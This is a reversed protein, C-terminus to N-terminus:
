VSKLRIEFTKTYPDPNRYQILKVKGGHMEVIKRTISLGLGTGKGTTRSKDGQVFPDFLHKATETEIFSGNDSIKLVIDGQRFGQKEKEISVWLTTKKPNHKYANTLLNQIARSLQLKDASIMIADDPIALELEMEKEEFDTYAKAVCERFIECIDEQKKNLKYGASDLKVYEFLLTVMDVTQMSKLRIAELYEKEKEKEVTGEALAQSFGAITTIPTKLDHAVDSLLLNKQKEIERDKVIRQMELLKVRKSVAVAFSIGGVVYPLVWIVLLILCCGLVLLASTVAKWGTASDVNIIIANMGVQGIDIGFCKEFFQILGQDFRQSTIRAFFIEVLILMGDKFSSGQFIDVGILKTLLPNITYTFLLNGIIQLIGIIILTWTFRKIIFSNLEKEDIM